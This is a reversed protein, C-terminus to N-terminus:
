EQDNVVGIMQSSTMFDFEDQLDQLDIRVDLDVDTAFIRVMYFGTRNWSSIKKYMKLEQVANTIELIGSLWKAVPTVELFLSWHSFLTTSHQVCQLHFAASFGCVSYYHETEWNGCEHIQSRNIYEWSRDASSWDNSYIFRECICSHLFQYCPRATENRPIYTKFKWYM